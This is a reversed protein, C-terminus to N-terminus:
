GGCVRAAQNLLEALDRAEQPTMVITELDTANLEVSGNDVSVMNTVACDTGWYNSHAM